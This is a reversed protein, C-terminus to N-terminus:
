FVYLQNRISIVDVLHHEGWNFTQQKAMALEIFVTFGLTPTSNEGGSSQWSHPCWRTFSMLHFRYISGSAGHISYKDVTPHNKPLHQYINWVHLM